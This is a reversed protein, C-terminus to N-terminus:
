VPAVRNKTKKFFSFRPRRFSAMGDHGYDVRRIVNRDHDSQDSRTRFLHLLKMGTLGTTKANRS